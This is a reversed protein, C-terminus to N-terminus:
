SSVTSGSSRALSCFAWGTVGVSQYEEPLDFFQECDGIFDSRMTLVVYFPVDSQKSLNLMMNVFDVAETKKAADKQEMTFRFLEEFQDVLLFFNKNQDKQLPETLNLIAKVGEKKIQKVFDVIETDTIQPYVQILIAEALNYM